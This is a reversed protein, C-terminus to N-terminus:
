LLKIYYGSDQSALQAGAFTFIAPAMYPRVTSESIWLPTIPVSEDNFSFRWWSPPHTFEVKV